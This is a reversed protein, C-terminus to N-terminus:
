RCWSKLLARGLAHAVDTDTIHCESKEQAKIASDLLDRKVVEYIASAIALDRVCLDLLYKATVKVDAEFAEPEYKGAILDSM